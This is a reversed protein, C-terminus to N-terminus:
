KHNQIIGRKFWSKLDRDNVVNCIWIKLSYSIRNIIECLHNYMVVSEVVEICLNLMFMAMCHGIVYAFLHKEEYM